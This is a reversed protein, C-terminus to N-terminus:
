SVQFKYSVQLMMDTTMNIASFVQRGLMTGASVHNFAGCETVAKTGTATWTYTLVTTDNTVTTTEVTITAGARALGTDVIESVLATQTAAAATTGTGLALKTFPAVTDASIRGAIIALGANTITNYTAIKGFMGTILPLKLDIGYRNAIWKGIANRNWLLKKKGNAKTVSITIHGKLGTKERFLM